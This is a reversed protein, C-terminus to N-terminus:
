TAIFVDAAQVADSASIGEIRISARLELDRGHPAVVGVVREVSAPLQM